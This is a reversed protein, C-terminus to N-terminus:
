TCSPRLKMWHDSGAPPGHPGNATHGRPKALELDLVLLKIHTRMQLMPLLNVHLNEPM